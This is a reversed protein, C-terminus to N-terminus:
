KEFGGNMQCKKREMNKEVSRIALTNGIINGTKNFRYIVMQGHQRIQYFFDTYQSNSSKM